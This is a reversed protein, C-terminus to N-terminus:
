IMQVPVRAARPVIPALSQACSLGEMEPSQRSLCKCNDRRFRKVAPTPAGAGAEYEEGAVAGADGFFRLEDYIQMCGKPGDCDDNGRGGSIDYTSSSTTPAARRFCWCVFWWRLIGRHRRLLCHRCNRIVMSIVHGEDVPM